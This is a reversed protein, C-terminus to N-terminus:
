IITKKLRKAFKDNWSDDIEGNPLMNDPHFIGKEEAEYRKCGKHNNFCYDEVWRKDLKGAEYFRKMPCVEYWKCIAM